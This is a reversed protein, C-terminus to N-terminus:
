AVRAPCGNRTALAAFHGRQYKKLPSRLAHQLAAELQSGDGGKVKQGGIKKAALNLLVKM